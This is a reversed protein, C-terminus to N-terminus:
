HVTQGRRTAALDARLAAIVPSGPNAAAVRALAAEADAYLGAEAAILAAALDSSAAKVSAEVRAADAAPLVLFRAEPLPPAPTTRSGEVTEAEVQWVLVRGTPLELAPRWSLATVKPSVTVTTLTEDVVRVHYGLAGSLATWRFTPRSDAVATAVPERPVFAAADTAVDDSMLVGGRASIQAALASTPMRADRLATAFRAAAEPAVGELGTLRGDAALGVVRGRDQLALTPPPPLLVPTDRPARAPTAPSPARAQTPGPPTRTALWVGLVVLAAAALGIPLAWRRAARAARHGAIPIVPAPSAPPMAARLARLDEVVARLEADDELRTELIERDVADLTGDVYAELQEDAVPEAEGAARQLDARLFRALEDRPTATM